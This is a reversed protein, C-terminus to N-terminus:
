GRRGASHRYRPYPAFVDFEGTTGGCHAGRIVLEPRRGNLGLAGTARFGCGQAQSGTGASRSFSTGFRRSRLSASTGRGGTPGADLLTM